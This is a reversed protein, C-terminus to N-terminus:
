DELVQYADNEINIQAAGEAERQQHRLTAIWLVILCFLGPILTSQMILMGKLYSHEDVLYGLFYPGFLSGFGSLFYIFGYVTPMEGSSFDRSVVQNLFVGTSHALGGFFIAIWFVHVNTTAVMLIACCAKLAMGLMWIPLPHIWKDAIYGTVLRGITSMVGLVSLAESVQFTSFNLKDQAFPSLYFNLSFYSFYFIVSGLALLMVRQRCFFACSYVKRTMAVPPPTWFPVMMPLLTVLCLFGCIVLTSREELRLLLGDYVYPLILAGIGSGATVIGAARQKYDSAGETFYLPIVSVSSVTLFSSGLGFGLGAAVWMQYYNTCLATGIYGLSLLITGILMFWFPRNQPSFPLCLGSIIAFFQIFACSISQITATQADTLGFEDRFYDFFVGLSVLTGWSWFWSMFGGLIIFYHHCTLAAMLLANRIAVTCQIRSQM